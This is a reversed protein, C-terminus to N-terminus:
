FLQKPKRDIIFSFDNDKVNKLVSAKINLEDSSEYKSGALLLQKDQINKIDLTNKDIYSEINKYAEHLLDNPIVTSSLVMLNINSKINQFIANVSLSKKKISDYVIQAFELMIEDNNLYMLDLKDYNALFSKVIETAKKISIGFNKGNLEYYHASKVNDGGDGTLVKVFTFFTSDVEDVIIKKSKIINLLITKSVHTRDIMNTLASFIDENKVVDETNLWQVFGEPVYLKSNAPSYLVTYNTNSNGYRVMQILDRDATLIIANKNKSSIYTCWAYILDDGELGNIKSINVGRGKLIKIFEACAETFNAWNLNSDASRNGKYEKEPYFDKRWSSSDQTWVVRDVMSSFQRIQYTFDVSLKEIFMQIEDPTDLLKKGKKPSPLVHLTRFLFYNGDIVLTHNNNKM